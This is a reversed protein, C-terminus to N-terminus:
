LMKAKKLRPRMFFFWFASLGAALIIGGESPSISIPMIEGFKAYYAKLETLPAATLQFHPRDPKSWRGGWELGIREGIAGIRDWLIGQPNWDPLALYDVPAIDVALNYNHYSDGPRANTVIPGPGTRGQSYIKEQAAISRAASVVRCPIGAAECELLLAKVMPIMSPQLTNILSLSYAPIM